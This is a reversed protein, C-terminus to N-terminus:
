EGQKAEAKLTRAVAHAVPHYHKSPWKVGGAAKRVWKPIHKHLRVVILEQERESESRVLLAKIKPLHRRASPEDIVLAYVCGIRVLGKDSELGAVLAPVAEPIKALVEAARCKYVLDTTVRMEVKGSELDRILGPVAERASAGIAVLAAAADVRVADDAISARLAKEVAHTRAEKGLKAIGRAAAVRVLQKRHGLAGALAPAGNRDTAGLLTSGVWLRVRQGLQGDNPAGLRQVVDPILSADLGIAEIANAYSYPHYKFAWPILHPVAESADKGNVALGVAAHGAAERDKSKVMEILPRIAPRYPRKMESLVLAASCRGHPNESELLRVVHPLSKEGLEVLAKRVRWQSHDIDERELLRVLHPIGAQGKNRLAQLASYFHRGKPDEMHRAVEDAGMAELMRAAKVYDSPLPEIARRSAPASAPQTAPLCLPVSVALLCSM